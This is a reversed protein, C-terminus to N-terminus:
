NEHDEIAKILESLTEEENENYSAFCESPFSHSSDCASSNMKKSNSVYVDVIASLSISALSRSKSRIKSEGLIGGIAVAFV